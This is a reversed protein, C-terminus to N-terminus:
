PSFIQHHVHVFMGVLHIIPRVCATIDVGKKLIDLLFLHIVADFAHMNMFLRVVM